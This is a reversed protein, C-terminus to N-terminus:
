SYYVDRFVHGAIDARRLGLRNLDDDSKSQLEVIQAQRLKASDDFGNAVSRFFRAFVSGNSVDNASYAMPFGKM